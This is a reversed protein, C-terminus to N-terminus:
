CRLTRRVRATPKTVLECFRKHFGVGFGLEGVSSTDADGSEATPELGVLLIEARLADSGGGFEERGM